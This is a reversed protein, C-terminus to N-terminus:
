ELCPYDPLTTNSYLGLHSSPTLLHIDLSSFELCLCCHSCMSQLPIVAATNPFYLGALLAATYPVLLLTPISSVWLIFLAWIMFSGTLWPFCKCKEKSHLLLWWHTRPRPTCSSIKSKVSSWPQEMRCPCPLLLLPPPFHGVLFSYITPMSKLFDVKLNNLLSM